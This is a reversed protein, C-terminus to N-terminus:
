PLAEKSAPLCFDFADRTPYTKLGDCKKKGNSKCNVGDKLEVGAVKPCEKVCVGSELIGTGSSLKFDTLIM